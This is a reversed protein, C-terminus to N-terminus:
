QPRQAERVARFESTESWAPWDDGDALRAGMRYLFTLDEIAGSLDWDRKVEDSVAHYDNATYETRKEIGYGAPKDIYEVGPDAYFAPIGARAFSFHDSRYYFGKEPEPDPALTRGLGAAVEAAVADLGSQGMGVITLDRTRGWQNLVDMNLAAVTQAAPYLPNEGYHRSGLLGQEEATVALFLISRRPPEPAEMFARAIEILGATGTANDAAGNFIQDGELSPDVGMHDWHAVYMVVEDPAGSGEIKAVVNQSDIRRLENRVRLSGTVGLPIPQFARDAAQRKATEFDLGAMEFLMEATARQVWGEVTARSLNDDAAVLDFSEAYPTSGVVEWPYGAPGTEHIVFAGAAGLEAAIEHKYTWRGYYTMAPGGFIDALPPDNVLFLLIKGGLDTEGFDDWDYEPARAGYGVFVFEAESVSVEDVVHKTTAVYDAAPELTRSEGGASVVLRDGPLPTIGVLPVQQVWTGDPNGPTLGAASFQEMLFAVTKTEGESGPARGEFEDSALTETAALLTEGSIGPAIEAPPAGAGSGGTGEQAAGGCGAAAALLATAAVTVTLTRAM